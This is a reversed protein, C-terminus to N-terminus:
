DNFQMWQLIQSRISWDKVNHGDLSNSQGEVMKMTLNTAFAEPQERLKVIDGALCVLWERISPKVRKQTM